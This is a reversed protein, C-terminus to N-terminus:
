EGGYESRLEHVWLSGDHVEYIVKRGVNGGSVEVEIDFGASSLYERAAELNSEGLRQRSGKFSSVVSAGGVVKTELNADAGAEKRVRDILEPIAQNGFRLRTASAGSGYPLLFHAMGGAAGATDRICVAVCSGVVTSLATSAGGVYIQGPSIFTTPRTRNGYNM